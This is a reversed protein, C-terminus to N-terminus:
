SQDLRLPVRARGPGQPFLRPLGLPLEASVLASCLPVATLAETPSGHRTRVDVMARTAQDCVGGRQPSFADPWQPRVAAARWPALSPWCSMREWFTGEKAVQPGGVGWWRGTRQSGPGASPLPRCRPSEWRQLQDVGVEMCTPKQWVHALRLGGEQPYLLVSDGRTRRVSCEDGM